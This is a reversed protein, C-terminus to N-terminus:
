KIVFCYTWIILLVQFPIRFWLYNLNVPVYTATQYDIGHTAAYINAPLILVFFIILLSGCLGQLPPYFIGAAAAVELVGTAYVIMEKCPIFGPLMMVMGKTYIFHGLATFILMAALALKGSLQWDIQKKFVMTYLVSLLFISLLIILPKM